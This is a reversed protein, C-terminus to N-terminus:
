LFHQDVQHWGAYNCILEHFHFPSTTDKDGPLKQEDDRSHWSCKVCTKSQRFVQNPMSAKLGSLCVGIM